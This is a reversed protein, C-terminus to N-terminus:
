KYIPLSASISADSQKQQEQIINFVLVIAHITFIYKEMNLFQGHNNHKNQTRQM